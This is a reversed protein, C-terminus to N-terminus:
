KNNKTINNIKLKNKLSLRYASTICGFIMMGQPSLPNFTSFKFMDLLKDYLDGIITNKKIYDFKQKYDNPYIGKECETLVHFPLIHCIYIIPIIYFLNIHAMKTNLFSFVIIIWITIHILSILLFVFNM